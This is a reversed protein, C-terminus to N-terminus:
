VGPMRCCTNRGLQSRQVSAHRNGDQSAVEDIERKEGVHTDMGDRRSAGVGQTYVVNGKQGEM